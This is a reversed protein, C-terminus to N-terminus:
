TILDLFDKSRAPCQEVGGSWVRYYAEPDKEMLEKVLHKATKWDPVAAVSKVQKRGNQRKRQLIYFPHKRLQAM